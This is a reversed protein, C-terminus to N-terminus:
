RQTDIGQLNRTAALDPDGQAGALLIDASYGAIGVPIEFRIDPYDRIPSGLRHHGQHLLLLEREQLNWPQTFRDFTRTELPMM